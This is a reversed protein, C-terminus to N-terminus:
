KFGARRAGQSDIQISPRSPAPLHYPSPRAHWTPVATRAAPAGHLPGAGVSRRAVVVVVVVVMMVVVVM